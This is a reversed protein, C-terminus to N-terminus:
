KSNEKKDILKLYITEIKDVNYKHLLKTPSGEELVEGKHIFVLRDALNLVEDLDHSSFLITVNKKSLSTILHHIDKRAKPDLGASPEDLIVLEPSHITTIAISLRKQQGISLKSALTNKSELLQCSELIEEKAEKSLKIHYLASFFSLNELTTYGEFFPTTQLQVGIHNKFDKKWIDIVGCDPKNMGLLLSLLTSKGAGNSGILALVEGKRIEFDINKIVKRKGFTKSIGTAKILYEM